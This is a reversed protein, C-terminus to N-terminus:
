EVSKVILSDNKFELASETRLKYKTSLGTTVTMPVESPIGCIIEFPIVMNTLNELLKKSSYQHGEQSWQHSCEVWGFGIKRILIQEKVANLQKAESSLQGYIEEAGEISKWHHESCCCQYYDM